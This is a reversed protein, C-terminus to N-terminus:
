KITAPEKMQKVGLTKEIILVGFLLSLGALDTRWDPYLLLFGSAFLALRSKRGIKGFAFLYGELSAALLICGM